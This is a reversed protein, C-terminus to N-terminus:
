SGLHFFLFWSGFSSLCSWSWSKPFGLPVLFWSGFSSSCSWSRSYLFVMFFWSGLHLPPHVCDLDCVTLVLLFWFGFLTLIFWFHLVLRLLSHVHDIYHCCPNPTRSSSSCSWSWLLLTLGVNSSIVLLFITISPPAPGVSSHKPSLDHHFGGVCWWWQKCLM